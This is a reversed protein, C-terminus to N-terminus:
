LKRIRSIFTVAKSLSLGTLETWLFQLWRSRDHCLERIFEERIAESLDGTIAIVIVVVVITFIFDAGWWSTPLQLSRMRFWTRLCCRMPYPQHRYLGRTTFRAVRGPLPRPAGTSFRRLYREVDPIESNRQLSQYWSRFLSPLATQIFSPLM